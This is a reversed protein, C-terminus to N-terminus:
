TIEKVRQDHARHTILIADKTEVIILDEVGILAIKKSGETAVLCNNANLFQVSSDSAPLVVNSLHTSHQIHELLANWSGIDSWNMEAPIVRVNSVKELVAIDIPQQKLTPYLQNLTGNLVASEIQNWEESLFTEFAKKIADLRWLFIGANWFFNGNKLYEQAKELSPKEVFRNVRLSKFDASVASAEIYGYGTHPSTPKIGFTILDQTTYAEEAAIDLLRLFASEDGIVHDSPFVGMVSSEPFGHTLLTAVSLMLCPATNRGCPELILKKIEPLQEKLLATQNEGSCVFIHESSIKKKLRETTAQILSRNGFLTLYQKPKEKRSMPWFRTGSGGAMIVAILPFNPREAM